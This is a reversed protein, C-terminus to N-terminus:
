SCWGTVVEGSCSLLGIGGAGSLCAAQKQRKDEAFRKQRLDEIAQKSGMHGGFAGMQMQFLESKKQARLEHVEKM